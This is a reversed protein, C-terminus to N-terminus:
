GDLLETVFIPKEGTMGVYWNLASVLAQNRVELEQIRRNLDKVEM